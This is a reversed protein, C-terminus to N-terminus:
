RLDNELQEIIKETNKDQWDIIFSDFEDTVYLGDYGFSIWCIEGTKYKGAKYKKFNNSGKSFKKRCQWGKKLLIEQMENLNTCECFSHYQSLKDYMFKLNGCKLVNFLNRHTIKEINDKNDKGDVSLVANAYAKKRPVGPTRERCASVEGGSDYPRRM